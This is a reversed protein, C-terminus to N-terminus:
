PQKIVKPVLIHEGDHKPANKLGDEREILQEVVDPRLQNQDNENLYVLPLVDNTNVENIKEFFGIIKQLDERLEMRESRDLELKALNALKSVLKDDVNM